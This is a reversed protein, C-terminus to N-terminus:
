QNSKKCAISIELNPHEIQEAVLNAIQEKEEIAVEEDYMIDRIDYEDSIIQINIEEGNDLTVTAYHFVSEIYSNNLKLKM